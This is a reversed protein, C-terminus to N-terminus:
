PRVAHATQEQLAEHESWASVILQFPREQEGLRLEVAEQERAPEAIGVLRLLFAHSMVVGAGRRVDM